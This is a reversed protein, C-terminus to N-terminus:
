DYFMKVLGSKTIMEKQLKYDVWVWALLRNYKDFVSKGDTELQM